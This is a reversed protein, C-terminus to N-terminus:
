ALPPNSSHILSTVRDSSQDIPWIDFLKCNLTESLLVKRTALAPHCFNNSHLFDMGRIVDNAFLIPHHLGTSPGINPNALISDRQPQYTHLLFDRLNGNELYEQYIYYPVEEISLGIFDAINTHYTLLRLCKAIALFNYGDKMQARDSITKAVIFQDQNASIYHAKWYDYVDGSELLTILTVTSRSIKNEDDHMGIMGRGDSPPICQGIAYCPHERDNRYSLSRRNFMTRHTKVRQKKRRILKVLVLFGVIILSAVSGATTLYFFIGRVVITIHASKLLDKYEGYTFCSIDRTDNILIITQIEYDNTSPHYYNQKVLVESPDSENVFDGFSDRWQLIVEPRSRFAICKILMEMEGTVHFHDTINRDDIQLRLEPAVVITSSSTMHGIERGSKGYVICEIFVSCVDVPVSINEEAEYVRAHLVEKKYNVHRNDTDTATVKIAIDVLNERLNNGCWIITQKESVIFTGNEKVSHGDVTLKYDEVNLQYTIWTTEGFKCSYNGSNQLQIDEFLLNSTNNSVHEGHVNRIDIEDPNYGEVFIIEGEFYWVPKFITSSNYTCQLTISSGVLERLSVFHQGSELNLYSVCKHVGDVYCIYKGSENRGFDEIHIYSIYDHLIFMNYRSHKDQIITDNHSWSHTGSSICAVTVDDGLFVNRKDIVGQFGLTTDFFYTSIVLIYFHCGLAMINSTVGHM